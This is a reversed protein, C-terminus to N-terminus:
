IPLVRAILDNELTGAADDLVIVNYEDSTPVAITYNGTGADSVASGSLAGDSRRYARVTRSANANASDKVNGSISYSAGFGANYGAPVSNSFASGGFNATITSAGGSSGGGFMAFFTGVLGSFANGKDVGNVIFGLTGADLDVKVGVVIGNAIAAGAYAVGVNNTYKEGTSWFLSWGNADVGPYSAAGTIKATSKGIGVMSGSASATVEFYWKGASASFVSRVSGNYNTSATLNANSLTVSAGKDAPNWTTPTIVM